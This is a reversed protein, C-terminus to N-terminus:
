CCNIIDIGEVLRCSGNTKTNSKRLIRKVEEKISIQVDSTHAITNTATIQLIKMIEKKTIKNIGRSFQINHSLQSISM